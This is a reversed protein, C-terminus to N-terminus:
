ATSKCEDCLYNDSDYIEAECEGCRGTIRPRKFVLFWNSNKQNEREVHMLEWREKGKKELTEKMVEWGLKGDEESETVWFTTYEWEQRV